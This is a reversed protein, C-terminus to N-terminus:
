IRIQLWFREKVGIGKEGTYVKMVYIQRFIDFPNNKCVIPSVIEKSFFSGPGFSDTAFHPPMHTAEHLSLTPGALIM